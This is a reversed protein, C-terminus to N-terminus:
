ANKQTLDKVWKYKRYHRFVLPMKIIEELCTCSFAVLVHWRFVFAGLFALPISVIWMCFVVCYADFQTDGGAAFMGNILIANVSRAIMYVSTIIMMGILYYRAQETFSVFYMVIPLVTLIVTMSLCGCLFSLNVLRDGYGKGKALNGAGLENGVLIVAASGIGNCLCCILDRVMVAVSNAATADGGMHGIIATYSSSGVSWLIFSGLLPLLCKRFDVALWRNRHFFRKFDLHLFGKQYTSGVSWVLEIMRSLLAALAVGKVGMELTGFLGFIFVANLVIKIIVVGLSILVSTNIKGAVKMLGLYCQSIGAILYTWGVIKLYEIGISVIGPENTFFLMLYKPFVTCGVFFLISTLGIWRLSMCFVDNVTVTDGKGWYQVGLIIAASVVSFVIVNNYIIQIQAALSVASMLDQQLGGLMLTDVASVASLLFSQLALPIMIEFLKRYFDHDCVVKQKKMVM